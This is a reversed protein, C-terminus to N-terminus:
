AFTVVVSGAKRGTDVRRHAEAIDEFDYSSDIVPRIVGAALAQLWQQAFRQM